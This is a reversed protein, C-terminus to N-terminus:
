KWGEPGRGADYDRLCELCLPRGERRGACLPRQKARVRPHVSILWDAESEGTLERSCSSCNCRKISQPDRPALTSM